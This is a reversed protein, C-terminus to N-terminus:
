AIGEAARTFPEVFSPDFQAGALGAIEALAESHSKAPRHPRDTTMADYADALSLLRALPDIQRAALGDPYGGGDWREHHQRILPRAAAYGPLDQVVREGQAPHRQVEAREQDSLPGPRGIVADPISIRGIDHVLAARRLTRVEEDSLGLERAARTAYDAVRRAHGRSYGERTELSEILAALAATASQEVAGYLRANEIGTAIQGALAILVRLDREDFSRGGQKETANLVGLLSGRRELPVALVTGETYGDARAADRFAPQEALSPVLLPVRHQAVWGALGEGVARREGVLYRRDTGRRARVVLTQPDDEVVLVALSAARTAEGVRELCTALLRDLDLEASIAQTIEQVALLEDVRAELRRNAELLDRAPSSGNAAAPAPEAPPGAPSEAAETDMEQVAPGPQQAAPRGAMARSNQYTDIIRQLSRIDFPKPIYDDAGNGLAQVASHVTTHGTIAVIFTQPRADKIQKILECGNVGPMRLDSIVFDFPEAHFRELAEAGSGCTTVDWGQRELAARLMACIKPEDDVVLIRPDDPRM